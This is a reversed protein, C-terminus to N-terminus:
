LKWLAHPKDWRTLWTPDLGEYGLRGRIHFSLTTFHDMLWHVRCLYQCVPESSFSSGQPGEYLLLEEGAGLCQTNLMIPRLGYLALREFLSMKLGASYPSESKVTPPLQCHDGCLVLQKCGHCIPVLTATETAQSAEDILVKHHLNVLFSLM